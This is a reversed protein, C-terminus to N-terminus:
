AGGIQQVGGGPQTGSTIDPANGPSLDTQPQGGGQEPGGQGLQRGSVQMIRGKIEEKRPLSSMDILIDAILAPPIAGQFKEMMAMAEEFQANLFTQALPTEDVKVTYKGLTVDNLRKWGGTEPDWTRQNLISQVLRGDEGLVRIVREETYWKQVLNLIKKGIFRKTRSNNDIYVQLGMVAQRQRAEIARGSQVRDLDGLASENIGSIDGFDQNAQEEQQQARTNPRGPEIQEPKPKGAKHKIHIGPVSGHLRLNNEQQPSLAGEESIWGGNATKMMTELAASRMKNAQEQPGILDEVMGRTMGRRFYPFYPVLSYSDYGPYGDYIIADAAITTWRLRRCTKREVTLPNGISQAYMMAKEIKMRDWHDPIVASDGTELDIFVFKKERTWQQTDILRVVKRHPDYVGGCMENFDNWYRPFSEDDMGFGRMPTIEGAAAELWIPGTPTNGAAIPAIMNAIARGYHAEIEEPSAWRDQQIYQCGNRANNLDYNEGDPDLKVSFPDTVAMKIEGFYNEENDIRCDYYGRGCMLGDLQAEMDLFEMENMDTVMKVTQNIVEATSESAVSDSQPLYRIDTRNNSYYGMVLRLLRGIKNITLAPRKQQAMIRLHEEDWQRGEAMDVCKKAMTAWKAHPALTRQYKQAISMLLVNDQQPLKKPKDYFDIASSSNM